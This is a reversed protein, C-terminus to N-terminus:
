ISIAGSAESLIIDERAVVDAAYAAAAYIDDVALHPHADLIDTVSMGSGLERLIQEVTVRTGKICPKGVMVRPDVTIREHKM